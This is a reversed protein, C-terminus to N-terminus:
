FHRLHLTTRICMVPDNCHLPRLVIHSINRRLLNSHHLSLYTVKGYTECNDKEKEFSIEIPSPIYPFLPILHRCFNMELHWTLVPDISSGM